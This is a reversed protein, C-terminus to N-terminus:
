KLDLPGKPLKSVDQRYTAAARRLRARLREYIADRVPTEPMTECAKIIRECAEDWTEQCQECQCVANCSMCVGGVWTGGCAHRDPHQTM